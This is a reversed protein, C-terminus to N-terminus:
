VEMTPNVLDIEVPHLACTWGNKSLHNLAHIGASYDYLIAGCKGEMEEWRPKMNFGIRHEWGCFAKATPNIIIYMRM